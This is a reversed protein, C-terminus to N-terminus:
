LPPSAQAVPVGTQTSLPVITVGPVAQPVSLTQLAAPVQVSQAAPELQTTGPMGHRVPVVAQSVPPGMQKSDPLAGIEDNVIGDVIVPAERKFEISTRQTERLGTVVVEELQTSESTSAPATSQQGLAPVAICLGIAAPCLRARVALLTNKM